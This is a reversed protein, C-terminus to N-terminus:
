KLDSIKLLDSFFCFLFVKTTSSKVEACDQILQYCNENGINAAM